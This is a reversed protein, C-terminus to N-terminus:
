GDDFDDNINYDDDNQHHNINYDDNQEGRTRRAAIAKKSERKSDEFMMSLMTFITVLFTLLMLLPSNM